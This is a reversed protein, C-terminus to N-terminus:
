LTLTTKYMKNERYYTIEVKDNKNHKYLYYKFETINTIKNGDVSSIIDGKKVGSNYLSEGEYVGLVVIGEVNEQIKINNSEIQQSDNINCAEIGISVRSLKEGKELKTIIDKVNNIPIMFSMSESTQELKSFIIGVVKGNLDIVAGGSSGPNTAADIQISDIIYRGNSLTVSVKRDIGSIIGRTVTGKYEVDIPSSITLITQGLELSDSNGFSLHNQTYKSDISLIAIDSYVDYGILNASLEKNSMTLVKIEDSSEVVHNNTIIYAKQNDIKYIFGSGNGSYEGNDYTKISVISDYSKNVINEINPHQKYFLNKSIFIGILIFVIAIIIYNLYKKM